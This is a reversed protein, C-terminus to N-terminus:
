RNHTKIKLIDCKGCIKNQEKQFNRFYSNNWIDLLSEKKIDGLNLTPLACCASVTGNVEIYVDDYTRLCYNGGRHLWPYVLKYIHKAIGDFAIHPLFDLGVGTGKLKNELVKILDKEEQFTPRDFDNFRTDLRTLRMRTLGHKIAFDAIDLLDQTNNKQIVSQTYLRLPSNQTKIMQSLRTINDLQNSIPHGVEDAKYKIADLSFTIADVGSDLMQQALEETLLEGNSTFRVNLGKKKALKIMDVMRNHTLPEGWGTLIAFKVKPPLKEIISEYLEYPMETLDVKLDFRQCMQCHFNCRNTVSIQVTKPSGPVLYFLRGLFESVINSM